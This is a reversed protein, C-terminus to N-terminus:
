PCNDTPPDVTTTGRKTAGSFHDGVFRGNRCTSPVPSYQSAYAYSGSYMDYATVINDWHFLFYEQYVNRVGVSAAGSDRSSYSNSYDQHSNYDWAYTKGIVDGYTRPGDTGSWAAAATATTAVLLFVSVVTIRLRRFPSMEKRGEKRGGERTSSTTISPGEPDERKKKTAPV